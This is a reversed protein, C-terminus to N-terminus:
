VMRGLNENIQETLIDAWNKLTAETISNGNNITFSNNLTLTGGSMFGGSSYGGSQTAFPNYTTFAGGM